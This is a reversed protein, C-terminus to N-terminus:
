PVSQARLRLDCQRLRKAMVAMVEFAFNPSEHVLFRFREQNIAAFICNARAIVTAVRPSADIVALEGVIEGAGIEDLVLDGLLITAHGSLLVYMLDGEEGERFLSAGAPIEVLHPDHRFLDYFLMSPGEASVPAALRAFFRDGITLTSHSLGGLDAIPGDPPALHDPRAACAPSGGWSSQTM